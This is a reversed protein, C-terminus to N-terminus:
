QVDGKLSFNDPLISNSDSNQLPPAVTPEQLGLAAAREAIPNAGARSQAQEQLQIMAAKVHDAIGFTGTDAMKKGYEQLMFGRFVEEGKGGGFTGDTKIGEFMPKMMETIFVAEFDKATEELRQLNVNDVAAGRQANQALALDIDTSLLSSEIM